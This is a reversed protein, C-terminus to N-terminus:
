LVDLGLHKLIANAGEFWNRAVVFKYPPCTADRFWRQEPSLAGNKSKMEVFLGYTGDSGPVPLFLDPVGRLMGNRKARSAAFQGLRIGNLSSHLLELEPIRKSNLRAWEVLAIQEREEPNDRKKTAQRQSPIRAM